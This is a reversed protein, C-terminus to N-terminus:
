KTRKQNAKNGKFSRTKKEKLVGSTTMRFNKMDLQRLDIGEESAKMESVKIPQFVKKKKAMFSHERVMPITYGIVQQIESLLNRENIDCFSIAEGLLGARGTRGIRHIYMEPVNPLDYNIVLSVEKIDIGRAAVDTAVLVQLSNEKFLDLAKERQQQTRGGHIAEAQISEKTLFSVVKDARDKTRTFLLVSKYSNEKLIELLLNRKNESDVFYLRQEIREVTTSGPSISIKKPSVLISRSLQEIEYPMTASFLLTQKKLPAKEIIYQIDHIFGMDLMQDAEDLILVKIHSINVIGKAIFDKLRGPTAVLIDVGKAIMDEQPKQAVGGYIVGYTMTLYKGYTELSNYVQLALERTPTIILAKVNTDSQNREMDERVRLLTPIAFAATKGTGTKAVGLVDEGKLIVPIAREQIPTLKTYNVDNIAKQLEVILELDKFEM